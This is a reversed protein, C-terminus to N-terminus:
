VETPVGLSPRFLERCTRGKGRWACRKLANSIAAAVASYITARVRGGGFPDHIRTTM